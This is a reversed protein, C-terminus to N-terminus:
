CLGKLGELYSEVAALRGQFTDKLQQNTLRKINNDVLVSVGRVCARALTQAMVWDAYVARKPDIVVREILRLVEMLQDLMAIPIETAHALAADRHMRHADDSVNDARARSQALVVQYARTDEDALRCLERACLDLRALVEPAIEADTSGARAEASASARRTAALRALKAALQAALAGVLAAVAAGAPTPQDSGVASVIDGLRQDVMSAGACRAQELRVEIIQEPALQPLAVATQTAAVLAQQPLLGILESEVIPVQLMTAQQRVAEVAVHLPTVALDVLNMSVQVLGRSPLELGIAKVAPLGGSSERITSAIRRAVAVDRSGVNVNFAVLVPRAGVVTVGATPHPVAPGCDPQWAPEAAMRQALAALGGRRITELRRRAPQTAAAEYFFIPIGLEHAVREGLAHALAVCDGMTSGQLPVFPVVDTAGVRPHAGTHRRLDIRERALAVAAFAAEGVADPAGAFTLVARHHDADATRHLLHVGPVSAVVDALAQIVAADRGESFNPVCEILRAM